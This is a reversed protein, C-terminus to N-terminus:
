GAMGIKGPVYGDVESPSGISMGVGGRPLLAHGNVGPSSGGAASSSQYAATVTRDCPPVSASRNARQLVSNDAELEAIRRRLAACTQTLGDMFLKASLPLPSIVYMPDHPNGFIFLRYTDM